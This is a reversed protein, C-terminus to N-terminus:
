LLKVPGPMVKAIKTTPIKPHERIPGSTLVTAKDAPVLSPPLRSCVNRTETRVKIAKAITKRRNM